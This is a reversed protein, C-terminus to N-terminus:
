KAVVQRIGEEYPTATIGFQKTFKSSDFFYDKDYQYRMEYMENLIPVFIGLIKFLTQNIVSYRPKVQMENAFMEIFEKGKIRRQDTPLHWIQGFASVTNGLLATAKAADPTFTFSHFKDVSIFWNAKKGKLLNNYVMENLLSNSIAPGYFDAARAILATIEGNKIHDTLDSSIQERIRGKVSCPHIESEETMNPIEDKAYSYVNDFFVLKVKHKICAEIVNAMLRPWTAIWTKKSYKLGVTLYAIDAGEVAKETESPNLLDAIVLEDDSNVKRPNRGVIRVQETYKKLEKALESGIAGGGGLIVQM